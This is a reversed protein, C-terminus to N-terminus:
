SILLNLEPEAQRVPHLCSIQWTAVWALICLLSSPDLPHPFLYFSLVTRTSPCWLITSGAGVHARMDSLAANEMSWPAHPDQSSFGATAVSRLETNSNVIMKGLLQLLLRKFLIQLKEEETTPTKGGRSQWIFFSFLPSFGHHAFPHSLFFCCLFSSFTVLPWLPCMESGPIDVPEHPAQPQPLPLPPPLSRTQQTGMSRRTCALASTARCPQQPWGSRPSAARSSLSAPASTPWAIWGAPSRRGVCSRHLLCPFFVTLITGFPMQLPLTIEMQVMMEAPHIGRQESSLQKFAPLM